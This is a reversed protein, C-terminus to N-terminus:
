TFDSLQAQFPERTLTEIRPFSEELTDDNTTAVIQKDTQELFEIAENRIDDDLNGFPEDFVLTEWEILGSETAFDNLTFVFSLNLLRTETASLNGRSYERISNMGPLRIVGDETLEIELGINPSIENFTEEWAETFSNIGAEFGRQQLEELSDRAHEYADKYEELRRGASDVVQQLEKEESQLETLSGELSEIEGEAYDEIRQIDHDCADLRRKVFGTLDELEPQEEKISQIQEDIAEREEQIEEIRENLEELIEESNDVREEINAKLEDLSHGRGCFPCFNQELRREAKSTSVRRDCTPCVFDNVAEAIVARVEESYNEQKRRKRHLKRLKKRLGEKRDFLDDLESELAENTQLRQIIDELEGNEVRQKLDRYKELQSETESIQREIDSLQESYRRHDDEVDTILQDLQTVADDHRKLEAELDQDTVTRIISILDSGSLDDLPLNGINSHVFHAKILDEHQLNKSFINQATKGSYESEGDDYTAGPTGRYFTTGDTFELEVQNQRGTRIDITERAGLLNYLIANFTLTKGTRSDGLLLLSNGDLEDIELGSHEGSAFEEISIGEIRM